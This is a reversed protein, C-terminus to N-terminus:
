SSAKPLLDERALYVDVPFASEEKAIRFDRGISVIRCAQDVAVTHEPRWGARKWAQSAHNVWDSHDKFSFLKPGVKIEM